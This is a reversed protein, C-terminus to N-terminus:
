SLGTSSRVNDLLDVECYGLPAAAESLRTRETITIGHRKLYYQERDCERVHELHAARWRYTADRQRQKVEPRQRWEKNYASISERRREKSAQGAPSKNWNRMYEAHQEKTRPM